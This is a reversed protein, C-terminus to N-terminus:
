KPNYAGILQMKIINYNKLPDYLKVDLKLGEATCRGIQAAIEYGSKIYGTKADLLGRYADFYNKRATIVDNIARLGAKEEKQMGEYALAASSLAEKQAVLVQRSSEHNRWAQTASTVVKNKVNALSYVAGQSTRKAQRYKSWSEGGDFVPISLTLSAVRNIDGSTEFGVASEKSDQRKDSIQYELSISPLLNQGRVRDVEHASFDKATRAQMLLPSDKIAIESIHDLTKPLELNFEPESFKTVHIGSIDFLQAKLVEFDSGVTILNADAAAMSAIASAVDTRTAVGAEFRKQAFEVLKKSDEVRTKLFEYEEERQLAKMYSDVVALLIKQEAEILKARENEIGAQAAKFAAIDSGGRFLNQQLKLGDYIGSRNTSNNQANTRTKYLGISPLWRSLSQMIKEDAAKLGERAAKLEPNNEYASALVEQLTQAQVHGFSSVVLLIILLFRM